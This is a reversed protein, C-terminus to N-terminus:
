KKDIQLKLVMESFGSVDIKNYINNLHKKLTNESIFLQESLKKRSVGDFILHIIDMERDTLHFSAKLIDKNENFSNKRLGNPFLNGYRKCLHHNVTKLIAIDRDSFNGEEKSRYLCINGYSFRNGAIISMAGYYAGIPELWEKMFISEAMYKEVIIDSERFSIEKPSASYWLIFDYHIYKEAYLRIYEESIDNSQYDFFDISNKENSILNSFSHSYQILTKLLSTVKELKPFPEASYIYETIKDIEIWDNASILNINNDM